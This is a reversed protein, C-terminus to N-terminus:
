KADYSHIFAHELESERADNELAPRVTTPGQLRAERSGTADAPEGAWRGAAAPGYRYWERAPPNPTHPSLGSESVPRM